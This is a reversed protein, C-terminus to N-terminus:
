CDSFVSYISASPLHSLIHHVFSVTTASGQDHRRSLPCTMPVCSFFPEYSACSGRGIARTMAEQRFVVLLQIVHRSVHLYAHRACVECNTLEMSPLMTHHHKSVCTFTTNNITLLLVHACELRHVGLRM